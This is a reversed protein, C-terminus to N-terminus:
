SYKSEEDSNRPCSNLCSVDLQCVKGIEHFCIQLNETSVLIRLRHGVDNREPVLRAIHWQRGM